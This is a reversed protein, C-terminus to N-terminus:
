ETVTVFPLQRFVDLTVFRVMVALIGIGTIEALPGVVNQVPPLTVRVDEEVVPLKHDFPAM